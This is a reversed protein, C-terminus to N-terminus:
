IFILLIAVTSLVISIREVQTSQRRLKARKIALDAYWEDTLPHQETM